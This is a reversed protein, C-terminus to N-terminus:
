IIKTFVSGNLSHNQTGGTGLFPFNNRTADDALSAAYSVTYGDKLYGTYKKLWFSHQSTSVGTTWGISSKIGKYFAQQLLNGSLSNTNATNCAGFIAVSIKSLSTAKNLYYNGCIGNKISDSGYAFLYTKQSGDWCTLSGADGHGSFFLISETPLDIYLSQASCNKFVVSYYGASNFNTLGEYAESTTNIGDAYTFGCLTAWKTEAFTTTIFTLIILIILLITLGYKKAIKKM